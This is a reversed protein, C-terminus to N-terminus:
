HQSKGAYKDLITQTAVCPPPLNLLSPIYTYRHSIWTSVQCFIVSNQLAIIRWNFIYIYKYLLLRLRSPSFSAPHVRHPMAIGPIKQFHSIDYLCRPDQNRKQFYLIQCRTSYMGAHHCYFPNNSESSHHTRCSTMNKVM